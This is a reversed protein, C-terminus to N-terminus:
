ELKISFKEYIEAAQIELFYAGAQLNKLDMEMEKEREKQNRVSKKMLLNGSPSYVAIIIKGVDVKPLRLTITQAEPDENLLYPKDQNCSLENTSDRFLPMFLVAQKNFTYFTPSTFPQYKNLQLVPSAKLLQSSYHPLRTTSESNDANGLQAHSEPICIFNFIACCVLLFVRRYLGHPQVFATYFGTM